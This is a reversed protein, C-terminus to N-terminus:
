WWEYTFISATEAQSLWGPPNGLQGCNAARNEPAPGNLIQPMVRIM